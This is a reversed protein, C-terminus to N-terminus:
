SLRERRSLLLQGAAFVLVILGLLYAMACSYGLKYYEFANKYVWYYLVMTSSGPGGQTMIYPLAFVKLSGIIALVSVVATTHRLSPFTVAWFRAWPGAGDVAAAEYLSKPIGALGASFLVINTGIGWYSTLVIAAMAWRPEGLWNRTVTTGLAMGLLHNVLGFKESLMWVFVVAGMAEPVLVPVFLLTQCLRGFRKCAQILAALFMSLFIIVPVRAVTYILTNKLGIWFYRDNLVRRYNEVGIFAPDDSYLLHYDTLSMWLSAVIPYAVFLGIFLFAPVSFLWATISNRIRGTM